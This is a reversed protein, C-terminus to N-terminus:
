SICRLLIEMNTNPTYHTWRPIRIQEIEKSEQQIKKWETQIDHSIEENWQTGHEWIKQM